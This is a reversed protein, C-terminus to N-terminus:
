GKRRKDGYHLMAWLWGLFFTLAMATYLKEM